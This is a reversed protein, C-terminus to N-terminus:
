YRKIASLLGGEFGLFPEWPIIYLHYGNWELLLYPIGAAPLVGEVLHQIAVAGVAHTAEVM